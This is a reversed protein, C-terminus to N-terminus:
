HPPIEIVVGQLETRFSCPPVLYHPTPTFFQFCFQAMTNSSKIKIGKSQALCATERGYKGDEHLALIIAQQSCSWIERASILRRM